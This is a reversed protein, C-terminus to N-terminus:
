TFKIDTLPTCTLVYPFPFSDVYTLCHRGKIIRRFESGHKFVVEIGISQVNNRDPVKHISLNFHHLKYYLVFFLMNKANNHIKSLINKNNVLMLYCLLVKMPCFDKEKTSNSWKYYRTRIICSSFDDLYTSTLYLKVLRTM